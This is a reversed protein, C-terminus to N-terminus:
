RPLRLNLDLLQGAALRRPNEVGNAAALAQWDGSGVADALGQLTTGQAAATLGRGGPMAGPFAGQAGFEQRLIRQQSLTLSVGARLPKGDSSFFDLTEEMSDVLGDFKFSGWLFRVGPPVLKTDDSPAPVPTMFFVVDQTLRRVDDTRSEGERPSAADFWLTLALKTTGAGVFQRGASGSAQSGGGEPTVVQNSFTVKLSEPNFQVRVRKGGSKEDTLDDNLEILLARELGPM